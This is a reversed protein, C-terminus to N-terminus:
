PKTLELFDIVGGALDHAQLNLSKGSVTVEVWNYLAARSEAWWNSSLPSLPAGAGGTVVYCRADSWDPMLAGPSATFNVPGSREYNHEHGSLVLDVHYRDFLPCWAKRVELNSGHGLGSSFPPEHFFVVKWSIAPNADAAQLDEQLWQAQEGGLTTETDLCVVHINGWDFSYWRENGPLDFQEFYLAANGEHNGLTPMLPAASDLLGAAEFWAIWQVPSSGSDVADGTYVTFAPQVDHASAAIRGFTTAGGRSDGMAAFKIEGSSGATPATRFGASASWDVGGDGCRYYYVTDPALGTLEATHFLEQGRTETSGEARSGYGPSTGYEVVAGPAEAASVWNVAMGSAPDGPFTLHVERIRPSGQDPAPAPPTQGQSEEAAPPASSCGWPLLAVALVMLIALAIALYGPSRAGRPRSLFDPRM